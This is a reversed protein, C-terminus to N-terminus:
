KLLKEGKLSIIKVERINGNNLFEFVLVPFYAIIKDKYLGNRNKWLM